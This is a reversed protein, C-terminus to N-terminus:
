IREKVGWQGVEELRRVTGGQGLGAKIHPEDREVVGVGMGLGQHIRNINFNLIQLELSGLRTHTHTHTLFCNRFGRKLFVFFMSCQKKEM